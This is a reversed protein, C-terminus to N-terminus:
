SSIVSANASLADARRSSGSQSLWLHWIKLLTAPHHSGDEKWRRLGALVLSALILVTLLLTLRVPWNDEAVHTKLNPQSCVAKAGISDGGCLRVNMAGSRRNLFFSDHCGHSKECLRPWLAVHCTSSPRYDFHALGGIGPLFLRPLEVRRSARLSPYHRVGVRSSTPHFGRHQDYAATRHSQRQGHVQGRAADIDDDGLPPRGVVGSRSTPGSRHETWPSKGAAQRPRCAARCQPQRRVIGVVDDRRRADGADFEGAYKDRRAARTPCRGCGPRVSDPRRGLVCMAAVLLEELRHQERAGRLPPKSM